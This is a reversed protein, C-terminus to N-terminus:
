ILEALESYLLNMKEIWKKVKEIYASELGHVRAYKEIIEKEAVNYDQDVLVLGILEIFIKKVIDRESKLFSQILSMEDDIKAFSKEEFMLGMELCYQQLIQKEVEAFEDDKNAIWFALKIFAKKERESLQGLFM